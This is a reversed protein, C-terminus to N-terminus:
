HRMLFICGAISALSIGFWIKFTPLHVASDQWYLIGITVVSILSIFSFFPFQSILQQTQLCSVRLSIDRTAPTQPTETDTPLRGQNDQATM